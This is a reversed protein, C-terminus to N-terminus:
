WATCRLPVTSLSPPLETSVSCDLWGVEEKNEELLRPEDMEGKATEFVRVLGDVGATFM